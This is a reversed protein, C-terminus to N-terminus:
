KKRVIQGDRAWQVIAVALQVVSRAEDLTPMRRKAPNGHRDPNPWILRLMGVLPEINYADNPGPIGLKWLHPQGSLQGLVNGLTPKDMMSAVVPILVAEVAKIAHDWADSADPERAYANSWAESLESSAVDAPESAREFATGATLDVRRRLGTNTATWASGGFALVAELYEARTPELQLILHIVDLCYEDDDTCAKLIQQGLPPGPSRPTIRMSLALTDVIGPRQTRLRQRARHCRLTRGSGTSSRSKFIPPVGEYPGDVRRGERPALPQVAV